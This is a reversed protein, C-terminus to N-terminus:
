KAAGGFKALWKDHEAAALSAYNGSMHLASPHAALSYSAALL